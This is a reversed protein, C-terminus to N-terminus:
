ESSTRNAFTWRIRNARPAPRSASESRNARGSSRRLFTPSRNPSIPFISTRQQYEIMGIIGFSSSFGAAFQIRTTEGERVNIVVDKVTPIATEEYKVTVGEPSQEFWGRDRLRQMARQLRRVNFEEGPTIDVRLDLRIRHEKTRTNGQVLVRGVSVKAGENFTFTVDVEYSDGIVVWQPEVAANIYAREGLADKLRMASRYIDRESMPSNPKQIIESNLEEANLVTNGKFNVNRVRYRKSEEIHIVIKVDSKDESFIIDEIFIQNGEYIDLFGELRYNWKLREIDERLAKEIYPSSSFLGEEKTAMFSQLDGSDMTFTGRFEIEDVNVLPGEFINWTLVVDRGVNEIQEKVEVFHYGKNKYRNVIDQKDLKLRHPNLESGIKLRLVEDYLTRPDEAKAGIIPVNIIQPYEVVWFIVIPNRPNAPDPIIRRGVDSFKGSDWLKHIDRALEEPKLLRHRQTALLSKFQNFSTRVFGEGRVDTIQENYYKEEGQQAWAPLSLLIFGVSTLFKM